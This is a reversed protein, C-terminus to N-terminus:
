NHINQITDIYRCQVLISRERGWLRSTSYQTVNVRVRRTSMIVCWLEWRVIRSYKGSHMTDTNQILFLRNCMIQFEIRHVFESHSPVLARERHRGTVCQTHSGRGSGFFALTNALCLFRFARLRSRTLVECFRRGGGSLLTCNNKGKSM